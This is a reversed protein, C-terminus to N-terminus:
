STCNNEAIRKRINCCTRCLRTLLDCPGNLLYSQGIRNNMRIYVMLEISNELGIAANTLLDYISITGNLSCQMRRSSCDYAVISDPLHTM